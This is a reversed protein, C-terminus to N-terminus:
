SATLVPRKPSEPGHVTVKTAEKSFNEIVFSYLEFARVLCEEVKRDRQSDIHAKLRPGIDKWYAEIDFHKRM